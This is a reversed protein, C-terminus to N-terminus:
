TASFELILTAMPPLTVIAEAPQGATEKAIATVSGGNGLGTGGYALADSNIKEIWRGARPMPVGYGVRPVPTLNSICVIPSAEDAWRVWAFVSNTYDDAILWRFGEGECDRGHM